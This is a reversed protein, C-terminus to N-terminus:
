HSRTRLFLEGSTNGYLLHTFFSRGFFIGCPASIGVFYEKIELYKYVVFFISLMLSMFLQHVLRNLWAPVTELHNVTYVSLVDFLLQFLSVILLASYWRHTRSRKRESFFYYLGIFFVIILCILQTKFMM